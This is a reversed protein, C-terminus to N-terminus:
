ITLHFYVGHEMSRYETRLVKIPMVGIMRSGVAIADYPSKANIIAEFSALFLESPVQSFVFTSIDRSHNERKRSGTKFLVLALDSLLLAIIGDARIPLHPPHCIYTRKLDVM